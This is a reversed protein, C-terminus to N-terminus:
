RLYSNKKKELIRLFVGALESDFQEGSNKKIEEVIEEYSMPEKYLRGFQMVDYADVISVIRALFPIEEGKLGRPYGKGDWREHHAYIDEAIHAFEETSRAIRYGIEPHKKILQWEKDNLRSKKTLISESINIKGIDHMLILLNLREMENIALGIKRSMDKAINQMRYIHDYTEDSKESLATLLTNIVSSKASKSESLKHQYMMDEARRILQFVNEKKRKTATGLAMSIPINEIYANNNNKIRHYVNWAEEEATNPLYIIFEDGSWRGIIDERRCSETLIKGCLKLMKDGFDHGYTDNVLKLGNLDAMIVSFPSYNEEDIKQAREELARRNYLGTLTDYFSMYRVEEEIKNKEIASTLIDAIIQLFSITKEDWEKKEKVFDFRIFGIIRDRIFLPIVLLSKIEQYEFEEKEDNAEPPIKGVDYIYIYSNNSIKEWIWHFDKIKLNQNREMQSDTEKKCWEKTVSVVENDKSIKFIYSRDAELFKGTKELLYKIGSDIEDFSIKLFNSSIDALLKEFQYRYNLNEEIKKRETIDTVMTIIENNRYPLIQAEFFLDKESINLSYEAKQKRKSIITEKIKKNLLNSINEPLTNQISKGILNDKPLYLKEPSSSIIDLYEGDESNRFVMDPLLEVISRYYEENEKKDTVDSIWEVIGEIFGEDNFIPIICLDFWRGDLFKAEKKFTKKTEFVKVAECDPCIYDFGRYTKYCKTNVIRKEKPINGFGKWNSYVINMKRDHVSIMDPIESLIKLLLGKSIKM